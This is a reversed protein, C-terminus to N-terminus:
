GTDNLDISHEQIHKIHIIIVCLSGVRVLVNLEFLIDLIEKLELPFIISYTEKLQYAPIGQTGACKVHNIMEKIAEHNHINKETLISCM